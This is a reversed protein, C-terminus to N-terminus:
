VGFFSWLHHWQGREALVVGSPSGSFKGSPRPRKGDRVKPSLAAARALLMGSKLSLPGTAKTLM